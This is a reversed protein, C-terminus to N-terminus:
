KIKRKLEGWGERPFLPLNSSKQFETIGIKELSPGLALKNGSMLVM